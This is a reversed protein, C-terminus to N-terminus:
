LIEGLMHHSRKSSSEVLDYGDAIEEAFKEAAIVDDPTNGIPVWGINSHLFVYPEADTRFQVCTSSGSTSEWLRTKFWHWIELTYYGSTIRKGTDVFMDGRLRTTIEENEDCTKVIFEGPLLKEEPDNKTLVAFPLGDESMIDYRVRKGEAYKSERIFMLEEQFKFTWACQDSCYDERLTLVFKDCRHCIPGEYARRWRAKHYEVAAGEEECVQDPAKKCKPCTVQYAQLDPMRITPLGRGMTGLMWGVFAPMDTVIVSDPLIFAHGGKKEVKHIITIM